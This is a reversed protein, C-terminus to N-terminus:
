AAIKILYAKLHSICSHWGSAHKDRMDEQSFERHVLVLESSNIGTHNFTLELETQHESGEWQWSMIIKKNEEITKYTGGVINFDCDDSQKITIRYTGGEKFNVEMAPVDTEGPALWQQLIAPSKWADFLEAVSVDFGKTLTLSHM